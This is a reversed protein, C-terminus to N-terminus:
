KVAGIARKLQMWQSKLQWFKSSKIAEIEQRLAHNELKLQELEVQQPPYINEPRPAYVKPDALLPLNKGNVFVCDVTYLKGTDDRFYEAFDWLYFDFQLLWNAMEILLGCGPGYGRSLWSELILIDVQPLTQQAGKLMALEFGQIDAKIAQPCPLDFKAIAADLTMMPVTLQQVGQMSDMEVVTSSFGDSYLNITKDTVEDGLAFKHLQFDPYEKLVTKMRVGYDPIHDSLPEFLHYTADPLVEHIFRSWYGNSAGIDFIVQPQYGLRKLLTFVEQDLEAFQYTARPM